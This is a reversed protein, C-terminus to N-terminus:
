YGKMQNIDKSWEGRIFGPSERRTVTSCRNKVM